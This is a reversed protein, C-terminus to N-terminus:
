KRGGIRTIACLGLAVVALADEALAVIGTAVLVDWWAKRIAECQENYTM